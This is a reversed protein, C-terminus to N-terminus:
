GSEVKAREIFKLDAGSRELKIHDGHQLQRADNTLTTTSGNASEVLTPNRSLQKIYYQGNRESISAHRRSIRLGLPLTEFNAILFEEQGVNKDSRGIIAPQWHLKYVTGTGMERLYVDDRMPRSNAPLPIERDIIALHANSGIQEGLATDEDLLQGDANNVLQYQDARNSLYDIESFEDLTATIFEAPTLNALPRARQNKLDFVDLTIDLRSYDPM